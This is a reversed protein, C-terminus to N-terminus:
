FEPSGQLEALFLTPVSDDTLPALSVLTPFLAWIPNPTPTGPKSIAPRSFHSEKGRRQHGSGGHGPRGVQHWAVLEWRGPSHPSGLEAEMAWFAFSTGGACRATNPPGLFLLFSPSPIFPLHTQVLFRQCSCVRPLGPSPLGQSTM